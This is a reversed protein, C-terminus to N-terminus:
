HCVRGRSFVGAIRERTAADLKDHAARRPYSSGSLWLPGGTPLKSTSALLHLPFRTPIRHSRRALPPLRGGGQGGQTLLGAARMDVLGTQGGGSPPLVRASLM